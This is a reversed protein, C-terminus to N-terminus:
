LELGVRLKSLVHSEEPVLNMVDGIGAPITLKSIEKTSKTGRNPNKDTDNMIEFTPEFLALTLALTDIVTEIIPVVTQQTLTLTLTSPTPTVDASFPYAIGSRSNYLTDIEAQSLEKTWIGIEDIESDVNNGGGIGGIWDSSNGINYSHVNTGQSVSDLFFELTDTGTLTITVMHWTDVAPATVAVGAFGYFGCELQNSGNWYCGAAAAGVTNGIRIFLDFADRTSGTAEYYWFNISKDGTGSLIAPLDVNQSGTFDFSSNILGSADYLTSTNASATGTNSGHADAVTTNAANEDLKYYSVLSDIIAM